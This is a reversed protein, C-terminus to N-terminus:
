NKGVTGRKSFIKKKWLVFSCAQSSLASLSPSLSLSLTRAQSRHYPTLLPDLVRAARCKATIVSSGTGCAPLDFGARSKPIWQTAGGKESESKEGQRGCKKKSSNKAHGKTM